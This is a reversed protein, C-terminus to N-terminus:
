QAVEIIPIFRVPDSVVGVDVFLSVLTSTLDIPDRSLDLYGYNALVPALLGGTPRDYRYAWAGSLDQWTAEVQDSKPDALILRQISATDASVTPVTTSFVLLGRLLGTQPLTALLGTVGLAAPLTAPIVRADIRGGGPAKSLFQGSLAVVEASINTVAVRTIDFAYSENPKAAAWIPIRISSVHNSTVGASELFDPIARYFFTSLAFLDRGRVLIRDKGDTWHFPQVLDLFAATTVAAAAAGKYNLLLSELYGEGSQFQVPRNPISATFTEGLVQTGRSAGALRRIRFAM